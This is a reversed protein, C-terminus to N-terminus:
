KVNVKPKSKLTDSSEDYNFNRSLEASDYESSHKKSDLEHSKIHPNDESDSLGSPSKQKLTTDNKNQKQYTMM